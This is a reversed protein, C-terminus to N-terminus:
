RYAFFRISPTHTHMEKCIENYYMEVKKATFNCTVSLGPLQYVIIITDSILYKVVGTNLVPQKTFPILTSVYM